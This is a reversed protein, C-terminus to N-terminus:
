LVNIPEEVLVEFLCPVALKLLVGRLITYVTGRTAASFPDLGLLDFHLRPSLYPFAFTAARFHAADAVISGM